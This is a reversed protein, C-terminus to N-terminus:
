WMRNLVEREAELLAIRVRLKQMEEAYKTSKIKKRMRILAIQHNVEAHRQFTPDDHLGTLDLHSSVAAARLLRPYEMELWTIRYRVRQIEKEIRLKRILYKAPLGTPVEPLTTGEEGAADQAKRIAESLRHQVSKGTRPMNRWADDITYGVTRRSIGLMNGLEERTLGLTLIIGNFGPMAKLFLNNKLHFPLFSDGVM